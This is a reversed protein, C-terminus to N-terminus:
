GEKFNMIVSAAVMALHLFVGPCKINHFCFIVVFSSFMGTEFGQKEPFFIKGLTIAPVLSAIVFGLM